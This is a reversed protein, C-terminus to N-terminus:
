FAAAIASAGDPPAPKHDSGMFVKMNMRTRIAMNTVSPTSAVPM